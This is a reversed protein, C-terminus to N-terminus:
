HGVSTQALEAVLRRRERWGAVQAPRGAVKPHNAVGDKVLDWTTVPEYGGDEGPETFPALPRLVTGLAPYMFVRTSRRPVTGGAVIRYRAPRLRGNTWRTLITGSFVLLAGPIVPVSIWEGAAQQVQLGEYDSAQTLVTVASGDAHEPLLLKDEDNGTDPSVWAPYGNVALSVHPLDGLPFTGAPLGQARAYVRLVRDAVGRAATLYQHTVAQLRPDDAPWANEHEYLGVYEEALGSARAHAVNDFQGVNFRELELRGIRLNFETLLSRPVGHNVAQIVGTDETAAKVAKILHAPATSRSAVDLDIVPVPSTM